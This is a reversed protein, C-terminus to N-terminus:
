YYNGKGTTTVPIFGMTQAHLRLEKEQCEEIIQLNESTSYHKRGTQTKKMDM